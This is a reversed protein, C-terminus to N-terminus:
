NIYNLSKMMDIQKQLYFSIITFLIAGTINEIAIFLERFTKLIGTELSILCVKFPTINHLGVCSIIKQLGIYHTRCLLWTIPALLIM